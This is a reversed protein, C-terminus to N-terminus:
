PVEFEEGAADGGADVCEADARAVVAPGEGVVASGKLSAIVPPALAVELVPFAAVSAGKTSPLVLETLTSALQMTGDGGWFPTM